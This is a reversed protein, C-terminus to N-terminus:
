IPAFATLSGLVEHFCIMLQPKAPATDSPARSFIGQMNITGQVPTTWGQATKAGSAYHSQRGLALADMASLITRQYTHPLNKVKQNSKGEFNGSAVFEWFEDRIAKQTAPSALAGLHRNLKTLFTVFANQGPISVVLPGHQSQLTLECANWTVMGKTLVVERINYILTANQSALLKDIRRTEYACLFWDSKSRALWTVNNANRYSGGKGVPSSLACWFPFQGVLVHAILDLLKANDKMLSQTAAENQPSQRVLHLMQKPIALPGPLQNLTTEGTLLQELWENTSRAQPQLKCLNKVAGSLWKQATELDPILRENWQTCDALYEWLRIARLKLQPSDDDKVWGPVISLRGKTCQYLRATDAGWQLALGAALWQYSHAFEGHGLAFSDKWLLKGELLAGFAEPKAAATLVRLDGGAFGLKIGVKCIAQTFRNPADIVDLSNYAIWIAKSAQELALEFAKADSLLELFAAYKPFDTEAIGNTGGWRFMTRLRLDADGPGFIEIPKTGPTTSAKAVRQGHM